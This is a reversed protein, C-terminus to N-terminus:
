GRKIFLNKLSKRQLHPTAELKFRSIQGKLKAEIIDIGAFVNSCDDKATFVKGGTIEITTSINYKNNHPHNIESVLIKVIIDKKSGRPLYRDLKGIRKKAYKQFSESIKYNKGSIEIKEIM